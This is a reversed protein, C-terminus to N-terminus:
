RFLNEELVGFVGDKHEVQRVMSWWAQYEKAAECRDEKLIEHRYLASATPTPMSQQQLVM